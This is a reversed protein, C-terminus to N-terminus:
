ETSYTLTVDESKLLDAGPESWIIVLDLLRDKLFGKPIAGTYSGKMLVESDPTIRPLHLNVGWATPNFEYLDIPGIIVESHTDWQVEELIFLGPSPVSAWLRNPKFAKRKQKLRMIFAKPTGLTITLKGKILAPHLITFQNCGCVDCSFIDTALLSPQQTGCKSCTRVIPFDLLTM